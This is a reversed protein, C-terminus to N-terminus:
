LENKNNNVIENNIEFKQFNKNTIKLNGPNVTSHKTQLEQLKITILEKM